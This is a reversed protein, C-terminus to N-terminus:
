LAGLGTLDRGHPVVGDPDPSQGPLGVRFSAWSRLRRLVTCSALAKRRFGVRWRLGNLGLRQGYHNFTVNLQAAQQRADDEAVDTCAATGSGWM